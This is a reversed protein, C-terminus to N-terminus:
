SGSDLRVIRDDGASPTGRGDRNSTLLWVSGDPAQKAARLRGLEGVFMAEAADPDDVPVRWLREGRLAAVLLQGDWEPILSDDLLAIGSWSAEPPQQVFIPDIFGEAGADGTVEPWGYNGGPTIVNIEDDRDPGFESAYMTGDPAWALGQPDRLGLAYVPSGDTPNDAPVEGDPTLRLIKGGLSEPDQAADPQGADGTAIYLMDDPGFAIRGGNHIPSHPIGDVIVEPDEGPVFRLVENDQATSRYVYLLGDDAFTPSAALGLLGDESSHTVEFTQVTSVEGDEGISLLNGSDRETVYTTGDPTFAVDWPAELDTAIDTQELPTPLPVPPPSESPAPSPEAAAAPPDLPLRECAALSVVLAIALCATLIHRV